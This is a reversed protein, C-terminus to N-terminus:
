VDTATDLVNFLQIKLATYADKELLLLTDKFSTIKKIILNVYGSTVTDIDSSVAEFYDSCGESATKYTDYLGAGVSEGALEIVEEEKPTAEDFM